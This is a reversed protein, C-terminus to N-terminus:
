LLLNKMWGEIAYLPISDFNLNQSFYGSYIRLGKGAPKKENLFLHMSYMKGDSGSKVEVPVVRNNKTIV